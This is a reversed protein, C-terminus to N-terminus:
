IRRRRRQGVTRATVAQAADQLPRAAPVPPHRAVPGRRRHGRGRGAVDAGASRREVGRRRRDQRPGAHRARRRRRLDRGDLVPILAELDLRQAILHRSANREFGARNRRYADVDDFLERLREVTQGRSGAPMANRGLAIVMAAPARIPALPAAADALSVWAAQGAVLGGSPGTIASTLGGTRAVPIGVSRGDYGDVARYAAHIETPQAGFRGDNGSEEADVEILGLQTASEILGATVTKGKGDIRTAGAPVAVGAGLEAIQGDRIVITANDLKRDSRQYITAGTIAITDAAVPAAVALVAILALARMM